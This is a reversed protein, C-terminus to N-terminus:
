HSGSVPLPEGFADLDEQLLMQACSEVCLKCSLGATSNLCSSPVYAFRETEALIQKANPSHNLMNNESNHCKISTCDAKIAGLTRDVPGRTM